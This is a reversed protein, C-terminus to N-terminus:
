RWRAPASCSRARLRRRRQRGRVRAAAARLRGAARARRAGAVAGAGAVDHTGTLRQWPTLGSPGLRVRLDEALLVLGGLAALAVLSLPLLASVLDTIGYLYRNDGAYGTLGILAVPLAALAAGALLMPHRKAAAVARPVLVFLGLVTGAGVAALAATAGAEGLALALGGVLLLARRARDRAGGPRRARAPRPLEVDRDTVAEDHM